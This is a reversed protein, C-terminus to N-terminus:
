RFKYGRQALKAYLGSLESKMPNTCASHTSQETPATYPRKSATHPTVVSVEDLYKMGCQGSFVTEDGLSNYCFAGPEQNKFTLANTCERKSSSSLRDNEASINQLIQACTTQQTKSRLPATFSYNAPLNPPATEVSYTPGVPSLGVRSSNLSPNVLRLSQSRSLVKNHLSSSSDSHSLAHSYPAHTAQIHNVINRHVRGNTHMGHLTMNSTPQQPRGLSNPPSHCSSYIDSRSPKTPFCSPFLQPQQMSSPTHLDQQRFEEQKQGEQPSFTASAAVDNSSSFPAGCVSADLHKSSRISSLHQNNSLLCSDENAYKGNRENSSSPPEISDFALPSNSSAFQVLMIKDTQEPQEEKREEKLQEAVTVDLNNRLLAEETAVTKKELDAAFPVCRIQYTNHSFFPPAQAAPHVFSRSATLNEERMSLVSPAPSM